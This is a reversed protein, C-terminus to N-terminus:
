RARRWLDYEPYPVCSLGADFLVNFAARRRIDDDCGDSDVRVYDGQQTIKLPAHDVGARTLRSRVGRVTLPKTM